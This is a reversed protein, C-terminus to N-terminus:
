GDLSLRSLPEEQHPTRRLQGQQAICVVETDGLIEAERGLIWYLIRTHAGPGDGLTPSTRVGEFRSLTEDHQGRDRLLLAELRLVHVAIKPRRTGLGLYDRAHEFSEDADDLHGLRRLTDAYQAETVARLDNVWRESYFDTDLSEAVESALSALEASWGPSDDRTLSSEHLLRTCLGWHHFLEDFMVLGLRGHHSDSSALLEEFFEDRTAFEPGVVPRFHDLARLWSDLKDLAPRCEVCAEVRRYLDLRDSAAVDELELALDHPDFHTHKM